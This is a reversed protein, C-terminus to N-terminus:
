PWLGSSGKSQKKRGLRLITMKMRKTRLAVEITQRSMVTGITPLEKIMNIIGITKDSMYLGLIQGTVSRSPINDRMTLGATKGGMAPITVPVATPHGETNLSREAIPAYM